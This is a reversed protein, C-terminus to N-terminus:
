VMEVARLAELKKLLAAVDRGAIKEEVAYEESLCRALDGASRKGDIKGWVFAGTANLTFLRGVAATKASSPVLLTEGAISRFVVGPSRRYIPSSTM